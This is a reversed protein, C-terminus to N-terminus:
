GVRIGKRLCPCLLVQLVAHNISRIWREQRPMRAAAAEKANGIFALRASEALEDLQVAVAARVRELSESDRMASLMCMGSELADVEAHWPDRVHSGSGGVTGFAVMASNQLSGFGVRKQLLGPPRATPATSPAGMASDKRDLLLRWEAAHGLACVLQNAQRLAEFGDVVGGDLRRFGRRVLEWSGEGECNGLRKRWVRNAAALRAHGQFEPPIGAAARQLRKTSRLLERYLALKPM